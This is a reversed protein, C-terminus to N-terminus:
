LSSQELREIAALTDYDKLIDMNQLFDLNEQAFAEVQQAEAVSESQSFAGGAVQQNQRPMLNWAGVAILVAAAAAAAAKLWPMRIVRRSAPQPGVNAIIREALDAPVTPAAVSGLLGDLAKLDAYARAWAADSAILGAVQAARDAALEGDVYASLDELELQTLERNMM